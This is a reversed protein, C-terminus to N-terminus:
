HKTNTVKATYPYQIDSKPLYTYNLIDRVSDMIHCRMGGILVIVLMIILFGLLLVIKTTFIWKKGNGRLQRKLVTTDAGEFARNPTGAHQWGIYISIANLCISEGLDVVSKGCDWNPGEKNAECQKCTDLGKKITTATSSVFSGWFAVKTFISQEPNFYAFLATLGTHIMDYYPFAVNVVPILLLILYFLPELQM